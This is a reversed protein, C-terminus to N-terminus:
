LKPLMFERILGLLEHYGEIFSNLTRVTPPFLLFEEISMGYPDYAKVFDTFASELSNIVAADVQSNTKDIVPIQENNNMLKQWSNQITIAVDCGVFEYIQMYNRFAGILLRTRSKKEQFISYVRKAVAIGAWEITGPDILIGKRSAIVKLWDDLRGEMITCVPTMHATDYGGAERRRLGREVAEMVAIAQPVTFCVTANINVGAATAEEIAKIGQETAPIKVQINPALSSFYKAQETMRESDRFYKANVQMSLRGKLGKEREFVPYLLEAGNLAMEEILKWAVEEETAAPMEKILTSIRDKWLNMEKKLVNCVIVPNTTAGVAGNSIAYQLEDISCSDNWVDTKGICTIQKMPTDM